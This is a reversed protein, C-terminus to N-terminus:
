SFAGAHTISVATEGNYGNGNDDVSPVDQIQSTLLKLYGLLETKEKEAHDLKQSIKDFLRQRRTSLKENERIRAALATKHKLLVQRDAEGQILAVRLQTAEEEKAKLATWLQQAYDQSQQASEDAEDLKSRTQALELKLQILELELRKQNEDGKTDAPIPSPALSSDTEKVTPEEIVRNNIPSPAVRATPLAPDAVKSKRRESVLKSHEAPSPLAFTPQPIDSQTRRGRGENRDDMNSLKRRVREEDDDDTGSQGSQDSRNMSSSRARASSTSAGGLATSEAASDDDSVDTFTFKRPMFRLHRKVEKVAEQIKHPLRWFSISETKPEAEAPEAKPESSKILEKESAQKIYVTPLKATAHSATVPVHETVTNMHENLRHPSPSELSIEEMKSFDITSMRSFLQNSEHHLEPSSHVPEPITEPSTAFTPFSFVPTDPRGQSPEASLEPESRSDAILTEGVPESLHMSDIMERSTTRSLPQISEITESSHPSFMSSNGTSAFPSMSPYMQNSPTPGTTDTKPTFEFDTLKVTEFSFGPGNRKDATVFATVSTTFNSSSDSLRNMVESKMVSDIGNLLAHSSTADIPKLGQAQFLSMPSPYTSMSVSEPTSDSEEGAAAHASHSHEFTTVTSVSGYPLTEVPLLPSAPADLQAQQDLLSATYVDDRTPTKEDVLLEARHRDDLATVLASIDRIPVTSVPRVVPTIIQVDALPPSTEKLEDSAPQDSEFTFLGQTSAAAPTIPRLFPHDDLSAFSAVTQVSGPSNDQEKGTSGAVLQSLPLTLPEQTSEVTLQDTVRFLPHVHQSVAMAPRLPQTQESPLSIDLFSTVATSMSSSLTPISDTHVTSFAYHSPSSLPTTQTEVHSSHVDPSLFIMQVPVLPSVQDSLQSTNVHVPSEHFSSLTPPPISSVPEDVSDDLGAIKQPTPIPVLNILPDPNLLHAPEPIRIDISSATSTNLDEPIADASLRAHLSVASAVQQTMQSSILDLERRPTLLGAASEREEREPLEVTLHSASFRRVIEETLPMHTSAVPSLPQVLVRFPQQSSPIAAPIPSISLESSSSVAASAAPESVSNFISDLRQPNEFSQDLISQYEVQHSSSLPMAVTAVTTATTLTLEDSPITCDGLSARHEQEQECNNESGALGLVLSQESERRPPLEFRDEESTLISLHKPTTVKSHCMNPSGLIGLLTNVSEQVNNPNLNLCSDTRPRGNDMDMFSDSYVTEPINVTSETLENHGTRFSFVATMEHQVPIQEVISEHHFHTLLSKISERTSMLEDYEHQEAIEGMNRAVVPVVASSGIGASDAESNTDISFLHPKTFELGTASERRLSKRPGTPISEDVPETNFQTISSVAVPLEAIDEIHSEQIQLSDTHQASLHGAWADHESSSTVTNLNHPSNSPSLQLAGVRPKHIMTLSELLENQSIESGMLMGEDGGGGNDYSYEASAAGINSPMTHSSEPVVSESTPEGSDIFTLTASALDAADTPSKTQLWDEMAFSHQATTSSSGGSAAPVTPEPLLLSAGQSASPSLFALELDTLAPSTMPQALVIHVPPESSGSSGIAMAATHNTDASFDLLADTDFGDSTPHVGGLPYSDFALSSVTETPFASPTLPTDEPNSVPLSFSLVDVPEMVSPHIHIPHDVASSAAPPSFLPDSSDADDISFLFEPTSISVAAPRVFEIPGLSPSLMSKGYAAPASAHYQVVTAGTSPQEDGDPFEM